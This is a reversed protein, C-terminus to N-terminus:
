DWGTFTKAAICVAPWSAAVKLVDDCGFAINGIRAAM